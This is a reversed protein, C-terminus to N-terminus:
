DNLKSGHLYVGILRNAAVTPAIKGEAVQKELEELLEKVRENAFFREEIQQIVTEHMWQLAQSRRKKERWGNERTHKQYERLLEYIEAIGDGKLASCTLVQPQWGSKSRPFLHLANQYEARATRARLQNEGDAKNIAISDAMEMIGKKIGQLEDGAGALMLLLFFDVMSHVAIESQGVGVTEVIIYDYGAAECLIMAERTSRTVGGLSGRAPSPRIFANEARSLSEMRTKDGLISGRTISSSPDVALVALRHGRELLYM